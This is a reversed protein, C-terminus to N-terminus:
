KQALWWCPNFQWSKTAGTFREWYCWYRKRRRWNSARNSRGIPSFVSVESVRCSVPHKSNVTQHFHTLCAATLLRFTWARRRLYVFSWSPLCSSHIWLVVHPQFVARCNPASATKLPCLQLEWYVWLLESGCAIGTGPCRVGRAQVCAFMCCLSFKSWYKWPFLFSGGFCDVPM